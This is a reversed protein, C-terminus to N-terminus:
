LPSKILKEIEPILNKIASARPDDPAKELFKAFSELSNKYEGKNLFAYGLRRHPPGWDPKITRAQIFFAIAKDTEGQNFYIEGINFSLAEDWPFIAIAQELYKGATTLDGMKMLTEGMNTLAQAAIKNSEFSGREKQSRNLVKRYCSIAQDYNEMGRYCNGLNINVQYLNPFLALFEQFKDSAESYNQEAYLVNGENFLALVEKDNTLPLDGKKAQVKKMIFKVPPNNTSFQSIKMEHRVDAYGDKKATIRFLGTGLGAVAWIGKKGSRGEFSTSYSAHIATIIVGELPNGETDVVSGTIRGKGRGQQGPLLVTASIILLLMCPICLIRRGNM